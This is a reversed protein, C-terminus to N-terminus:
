RRMIVVYSEFCPKCILDGDGGIMELEYRLQDCHDCTFPIEICAPKTEAAEPHRKFYREYGVICELETRPYGTALGTERALDLGLDMLEKAAKSATVNREIKM